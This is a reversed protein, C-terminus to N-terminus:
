HQGACRKGIEHAIRAVEWGDPLEGFRIDTVVGLIPSDASRLIKIAKGSNTVARVHFGTDTLANEFDLLLMAEDEGLLITVEEM